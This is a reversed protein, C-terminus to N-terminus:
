DSHNGDIQEWLLRSPPSGSRERHRGAAFFPAAVWRPPTRPRKLDSFRGFCGRPALAAALPGGASAPAFLGAGGGEGSQGNREFPRRAPAPAGVVVSRQVDRSDLRARSRRRSGFRSRSECPATKGAPHSSCSTRQASKEG